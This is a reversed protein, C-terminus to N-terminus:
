RSYKFAFKEGVNEVSVVVKGGNELEGFLIEQSLPKKIEQDIIRILPRAGMKPDFGRKALLERAKMDVVLEVGKAILKTELAILFKDVIKLVQEDSLKNFHVIADLRNRFEPSFFNKIAQDRKTTNVAVAGGLGISGSEMEKAGANSTMIIVVNRFDTHRGQSDTLTGHDMVQLLVNFVDPHAKEIEDLLLVAHPHKKITDTLLGGNDFGVYGPPAGVLKAVSHKEMYESMDFRELHIGLELALQKALETKGVGTPGTFLFAGMPKTDHSLGSRSLLISDSVTDIAQDQGFLVRKLNTKLGKLKTKEDSAVSMKPINAIKSIIVEVDKKNIDVHKEAAPAIRMMAGLEDMVDISKDPNKRDTIHKSALDVIMRVIENSYKVDHHEEFKGKLGLLIEFTEDNSPEIVDVKQLRRSFAQDKEIFKRYEEYTTSGIVRIEGSSMAPKLLNSADMSGSSTAGAGMITHMEDIFIVTEKNQEGDQEKYAKIAKIVSKLRQEFDGRYKTGALLSAMDLSFVVTNKLVEPVDQHVIRYALGEAIATKGVGAEGVLLPNNKRRRCLIQTVRQIEDQRGIIPDIKGKVVQENLNICYLDLANQTNQEENTAGFEGRISELVNPNQTNLPRDVGHAVLKIIDFKEINHSQLLYAAFSEPENFIAVLLNIAYIEKKGSSQVHIAARQIVRQLGESIEPQFFIGSQAAVKRLSEDVFQDQSLAEIQEETLISFNSEDALFGDLEDILNDINVHLNSLIEVVLEDELIASMLLELTLYEHKLMNAKIVANNIVVELRLNKSM